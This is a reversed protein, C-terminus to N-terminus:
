ALVRGRSFLPERSRRTRCTERGEDRGRRQRNWLDKSPLNSCAGHRAPPRKASDARKASRKATSMLNWILSDCDCSHGAFEADFPISKTSSGCLQCCREGPRVSAWWSIGWARVCIEAAEDERRSEGEGGAYDGLGDASVGLSGGLIGPWAVLIAAFSVPGRSLPRQGFICTVRCLNGGLICRVASRNRRFVRCVPRLDGGFISTLTVFTAALSVACPVSPQQSLCM